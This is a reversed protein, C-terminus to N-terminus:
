DYNMKIKKNYILKDGVYIHARTGLKGDLEKLLDKALKKNNVYFKITGDVFLSMQEIKPITNGQFVMTRLRKCDEFAGHEIKEVNETIVIKKVKSRYFASRGLIKVTKPVTIVNYGGLVNQQITKDKNLVINNEVSLYKNKKSIKIKKLTKIAGLDVEKVYRPIRIEKLNKANNLFVFRVKTGKIKAPITVKTKKGTYYEVCLANEEFLRYKLNKYKKYNYGEAQASLICSVSLILAMIM